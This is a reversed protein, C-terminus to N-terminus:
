LGTVLADVWTSVGAWGPNESLMRLLYFGSGASLLTAACTALGWMLIGRSARAQDVAAKYHAAANMAGPVGNDMDAVAKEYREQETRGPMWRSFPELVREVATSFVLLAAFISMEGTVRFPNVDAFVGINWAGFAGFLTLGLGTLVSWPRAPLTPVAAALEHGSLAAQHPIPPPHPVPQPVPHAVEPHHAVPVQQPAVPVPHHPVPMAPVPERGVVANRRVLAM